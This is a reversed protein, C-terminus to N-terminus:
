NNTKLSNTENIVQNLLTLDFINTLNPKTKGLYGLDFADDAVKFLSTKIPDYTFDIRSIADKLEDEPIQKGTIKELEQNFILIGEEKNENFWDTLEVNKELLIKVVDPHNEIIDTKAVIMTTVFKGDPPWLSREDLLRFSNTEKILKSAWHEPVWAGDIDKKLMLTFIDPNKAPIVKTSGGFETISVNNEQLYTKLAVDQTNGIQPSAFKKQNLDLVSEIGSDNRVVFSVGGSAVGSIIKLSGDSISYGNIAPNPGVFAIDIENAFLAEIVSPGANFIKTKINTQNGIAKQFEGNGFGIVAQLHNINPFYGVSLEKLTENKKNNFDNSEVINNDVINNEYFSTLTIFTILIIIIIIKIKMNNNSM